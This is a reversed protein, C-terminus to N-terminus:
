LAAPGPFKLSRLTAGSFMPYIAQRDLRVLDAGTSGAPNATTRVTRDTGKAACSPLVSGASM